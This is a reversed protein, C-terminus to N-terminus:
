LGILGLLGASLSSGWSMLSDKPKMYAYLSAGGFIGSTIAIAIPLIAPDLYKSFAFMPASLIGMGGMAVCYALNRIYSNKTKLYTV